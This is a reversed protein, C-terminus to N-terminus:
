DTSVVPRRKHRGEALGSWSMGRQWAIEKHHMKIYDKLRRRPRELPRNEESKGVLSRYINRRKGWAKWM